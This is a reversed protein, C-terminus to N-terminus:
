QGREGCHEVVLRWYEGDIELDIYGDSGDPEYVDIEGDDTTLGEQLSANIVEYLRQTIASKSNPM